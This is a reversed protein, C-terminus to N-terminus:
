VDNAVESACSSVCQLFVKGTCVKYNHQQSWAFDSSASEYVYQRSVRHRGGTCSGHQESFHCSHENAFADELECRYFIISAM